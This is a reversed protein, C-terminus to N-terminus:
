RHLRRSRPLLHEQVPRLLGRCGPPILILAGDGRDKSVCSDRVPGARRSLRLYRGTCRKTFLPQDLNTRAPDGLQEVGVVMIARHVALLHHVHRLPVVVCTRACGTACRAMSTSARGPTLSRWLMSSTVKWPAAPPPRTATASPVSSSSTITAGHPCPRHWRGRSSTTSILWTRCTGCGAASKPQGPPM